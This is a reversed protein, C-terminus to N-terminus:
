HVDFRSIISILNHIQPLNEKGKCESLLSILRDRSSKTMSTLEPEVYMTLLSDILANCFIYNGINSLHNIESIRYYLFQYNIGLPENKMMVSYYFDGLAHCTMANTNQVKMYYDVQMDEFEKKISRLDIVSYINWALLITVLLSLIGVLIGMYDFDLNPSRYAAVCLSIVSVLLSVVCGWLLLQVKRNVKYLM